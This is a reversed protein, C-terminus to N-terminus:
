DAPYACAKGDSPPKALSADSLLLSVAATGWIIGFVTLFTRLKQSGLDRFIQRM